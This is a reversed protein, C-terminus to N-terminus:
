IPLHWGGALLVLNAAMHALTAPLLSTPGDESHQLTLRTLAAGLLFAPLWVLPRFQLTAYLAAGLWLASRESMRTRLVDWLVGRFLRESAWPLIFVAALAQLLWIENELPLSLSGQPGPLSLLSSYFYLGGLGIGLGLLLGHLCARWQIPRAAPRPLALGLGALFVAQWLFLWPQGPQLRGPLIQAILQGSVQHIFSSKTPVRLLALVSLLLLIPLAYTFAMLVLTARTPIRERRGLVRLGWFLGGMGLLLFFAAFLVLTLAWPPPFSQSKAWLLFLLGFPVAGLGWRLATPRSKWWGSLQGLHTAM